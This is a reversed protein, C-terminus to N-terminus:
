NFSLHLIYKLIVYNSCELMIVHKVFKQKCNLVYRMNSSLASARSSVSTAVNSLKHTLLQKKAAALSVLSDESKSPTPMKIPTVFPTSSTPQSTMKPLGPVVKPLSSLLGNLESLNIDDSTVTVNSTATDRITRLFTVLQELQSRFFSIELKLAQCFSPKYSVQKWWKISM